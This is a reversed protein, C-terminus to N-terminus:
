DSIGHAIVAGIIGFAVSIGTGYAAWYEGVSVNFVCDQGAKLTDSCPEGFIAFLLLTAVQGGALGILGGLGERM